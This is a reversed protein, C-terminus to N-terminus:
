GCLCAAISQGVPQVKLVRKSWVKQLVARRQLVKYCSQVLLIAATQGVSVYRMHQLAWNPASWKLGPTGKVFEFPIDSPPNLNM